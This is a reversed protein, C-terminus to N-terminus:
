DKSAFIYRFAPISDNLVASKSAVGRRARNTVQWSYEFTSSVAATASSDEYGDDVAHAGAVVAAARFKASQRRNFRLQMRLVPEVVRM